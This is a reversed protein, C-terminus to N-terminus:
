SVFICNTLVGIGCRELLISVPLGSVNLKFLMPTRKALRKLCKDDLLVCGSVDVHQLSVFRTALLSLPFEDFFFACSVIVIRSSCLLRRDVYSLSAFGVDVVFRM